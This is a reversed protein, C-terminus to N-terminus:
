AEAVVKASGDPNWNNLKKQEGKRNWELRKGEQGDFFTRESRKSADEYWTTYTGKLKDKSFHAESRVQGNEHYVAHRGDRQGHSYCVDIQLQGSEYWVLHPGHREGHLYTVLSNKNGNEFWWVEEGHALGECFEGELSINGNDFLEVARGTFPASEGKLYCVTGEQFHYFIDGNENRWELAAYKVQETGATETTMPRPFYRLSSSNVVWTEGAYIGAM